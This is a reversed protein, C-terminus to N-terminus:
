ISSIHGAIHSFLSSLFLFSHLILVINMWSTTRSQNKRLEYGYTRHLRQYIRVLHYVIYSDCLIITGTPILETFLCHITIHNKGFHIEYFYKQWKISANPNLGCYIKTIIITSNIIKNRFYNYYILNIFFYKSM